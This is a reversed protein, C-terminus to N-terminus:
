LIYKRVNYLHTPVHPLFQVKLSEKFYSNQVCIARYQKTKHLLLFIKLVLFGSTFVLIGCWSDFYIFVNVYESLAKLIRFYAYKQLFQQM